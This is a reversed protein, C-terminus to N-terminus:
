TIINFTIFKITNHLKILVNTYICCFTQMHINKKKKESQLHLYKLFKPPKLKEQLFNPPKLNPLYFYFPMGEKRYVVELEAYFYLATESVRLHMKYVNLLPEFIVKETDNNIDHRDDTV